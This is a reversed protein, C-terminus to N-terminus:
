VAKAYQFKLNLVGSDSNVLSLQDKAQLAESLQIGYIKSKQKGKVDHDIRLISKLLTRNAVFYFVFSIEDKLYYKNFLSKYRAKGKDSREYEVAGFYDGNNVKINLFGDSNLNVFGSYDYDDADYLGSQLENETLYYGFEELMSLKHKIDVLAIEHNFDPSKLQSRSREGGFVSCHKLGKQTLHYVGYYRGDCIPVRGIFGNRRLKLLRRNVATDTAGNFIDRQIQKMIAGKTKFLYAFLRIDRDTLAFRVKPKNM